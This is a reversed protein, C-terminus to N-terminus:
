AAENEAWKTHPHEPGLTARLIAAAERCMEELERLKKGWRKGSYCRCWGKFSGRAPLIYIYMYIHIYIYIYTYIYILLIYSM